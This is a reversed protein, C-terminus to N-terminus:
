FAAQTKSKTKVLVTATARTLETVPATLNSQEGFLYNLLFQDVKRYNLAVVISYKGPEAPATVAPGRLEVSSGNQGSIQATTTDTEGGPCPISFQVTDSYGPFL